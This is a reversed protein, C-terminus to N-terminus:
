CYRYEQKHKRRNRVKGIVNERESFCEVSVYFKIQYYFHLWINRSVRLCRLCIVIPIMNHKSTGLRCVSFGNGILTVLPNPRFRFFSLVKEIACSLYSFVLLCRKTKTILGCMQARLSFTSKSGSIPLPLHPVPRVEAHLM